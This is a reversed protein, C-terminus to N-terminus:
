RNDIEKDTLYCAPDEAWFDDYVAEARTRFNGNCMALHACAACRGKLLAKRNKLGAM